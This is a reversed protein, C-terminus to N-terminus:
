ILDDKAIGKTGEYVFGPPKLLPNITSAPKSPAGNIAPSAASSARLATSTDPSVGKADRPAASESKRQRRARSLADRLVAETAEFGEEALEKRMVELRIGHSLRAEIAILHQRIVSALSQPTAKKLQDEVHRLARNKSGFHEPRAGSISGFQEWIAIVPDM